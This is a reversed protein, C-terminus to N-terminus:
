PMLVISLVLRPTSLQVNELLPEPIHLDAPAPPLRVTLLQAKKFLALLPPPSYATM